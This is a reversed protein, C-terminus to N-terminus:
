RDEIKITCYSTVNLSGTSNQWAMLELYDGAACQVQFSFSVITGVTAVGALQAFAVNTTVGGKYVFVRRVGTTSVAFSIYGAVTALKNGAGPITFRTPAGASYISANDTIETDFSVAVFTSDAVAQNASRQVYAYPRVNTITVLDGIVWEITTGDVVFSLFYEQATLAPFTYTTITTNLTENTFSVDFTLTIASATNTILKLVGQAGSIVNTMDITFSQSSTLKAMPLKRNDCNWVVTSGDTLTTMASALDSEVGTLFRGHAGTGFDSLALM